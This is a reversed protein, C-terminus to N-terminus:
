MQGSWIRTGVTKGRLVEGVLGPYAGSFIAGELGTVMKVLGLMEWVKSAMGGTVDVAVSGGLAPAVEAFNWPTIESVVKTCAPYDAWVGAEIGAILVRAPKLEPALHAFIDETSLITGGWEQDFVVDGYVVPLLGAELAARVPTLDWAEVQGARTVASGSVAFRVAPLGATHLADVVLRNLADAERWVEAFGRWQDSTQVGQRTGYKKAPVHAFSGSGHGLVLQLDGLDEKADAIERALRALVDMQPMGPKYKDTILSGGLKLFQIAM